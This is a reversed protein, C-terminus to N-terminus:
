KESEGFDSGTLDVKLLEQQYTPAYQEFTLQLHTSNVNGIPIYSCFGTVVATSSLGTSGAFTTNPYYQTATVSVRPANYVSLGYPFNTLLNAGSAEAGYIYLGDVRGEGWDAQGLMAPRPAVRLASASTTPLPTAAEGLSIIAERWLRQNANPIDSFAAVVVYYSDIPVIAACRAVGPEAGPQIYVPGAWKCGSMQKRHRPAYSIPFYRAVSSAAPDSIFLRLTQTPPHNVLATVTPFETGLISYFLGGAWRVDDMLSRYSFGDTAFLGAFSACALEEQGRDATIVTAAHAHAVGFISSIIEIARGRSFSADDESPLYNIRYLKTPTAVILRNNVVGIYTIVEPEPLPFQFLGPFYDPFGPM